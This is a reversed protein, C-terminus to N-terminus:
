HLTNECGVSAVLSPNLLKRVTLNTLMKALNGFPWFRDSDAVYYLSGLLDGIHAVAEQRSREGEPKQREVPNDMRCLSHKLKSWDGHCLGSDHQGERVQFDFHGTRGRQADLSAKVM